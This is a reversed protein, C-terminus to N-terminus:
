VEEQLQTVSGRWYGARSLGSDSLFKMYTSELEVYSKHIDDYDQSQRSSREEDTENAISEENMARISAYGTPIQQENKYRSTDLSDSAVAAGVLDAVETRDEDLIGQWRKVKPRHRSHYTELEAHRRNVEKNICDHIYDVMCRVSFGVLPAILLLPITVKALTGVTFSQYSPAPTSINSNVKLNPRTTTSLLEQGRKASTLDDYRNPSIIRQSNVTASSRKAVHTLQTCIVLKQGTQLLDIDEVDNDEAIRDVTTNYQKALATLTDGERVTHVLGESNLLPVTPRIGTGQADIVSSEEVASAQWRSHRSKPTRKRSRICLQCGLGTSGEPISHRQPSTLATKGGRVASTYHGSILPSRGSVSVQSVPAGRSIQSPSTRAPWRCTLIENAPASLSVSGVMLEMVLFGPNL